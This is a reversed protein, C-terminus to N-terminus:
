ATPASGVAAPRVEFRVGASRLDHTFVMGLQDDAVKGIFAASGGLSAVGAVTNAASGGSAEVAPGMREYLQASQEADVLMMSGKQLGLGTVLDDDAHALVDVIANGVAVVDVPGTPSGPPTM